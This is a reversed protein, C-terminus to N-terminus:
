SVPFNLNSTLTGSPTKVKVPGTTAGSPVTTKIESSSVVTFQALTGDFSVNTAGTLNNGLIIVDAGMIGSTPETKVFHGLGLAMSFVTGCGCGTTNPGGVTLGYFSGNTAQILGAAPDNGDTFYDFSHLTTLTGEATIKFVTGCGSGNCDVYAGGLDTTGYFNGDTVQVLGAQPYYGDTGDFSHLMTLMRGATIKFVTGDENAGGDATTEYFNGDTAQVLAGLPTAGDACNTQSCFSYLTTLIGGATIKFVTGGAHAAGGNYTTGYFNGDTAQVLGALPGAGDTRDFSHLTTLTGGPTLKFVTGCGGQGNEPCAASTGGSETTGYFNGDTGQVLSKYPEAGNAGDFNVLTTVTPAPSAIVTAACFVFVLSVMRLLTLKRM